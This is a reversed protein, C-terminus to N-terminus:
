TVISVMKGPVVIVKRITKGELHRQVNELSLATAELEDKPADRAAEFKGRLKGKIQVAYTM